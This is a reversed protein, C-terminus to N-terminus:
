IASKKIIYTRQIITIVSGALIVLLLIDFAHMGGIEGRWFFQVLSAIMVLTMRDVKAMVGSYIRTGGVAKHLIGLYSSILVFPITFIGIALQGHPSFAVGLLVATDAMRDVAEQLAEGKASSMERARAVMGDLLNCAFRFLICVPGAWLTWLWDSKFFCLGACVCFPLSLLTITNPHFRIMLKLLPGVVKQSISKSAYMNM